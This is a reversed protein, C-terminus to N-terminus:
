KRFGSSAASIKCILRQFYFLVHDNLYLGVICECLKFSIGLCNRVMSERGSRALSVQLSKILLVMICLGGKEEIFSTLVGVGLVLTHSISSLSSRNLLGSRLGM